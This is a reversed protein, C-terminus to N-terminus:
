PQHTRPSCDTKDLISLLKPISLPVIKAIGEPKLAHLDRQSEPDLSGKRSALVLSMVEIHAERM